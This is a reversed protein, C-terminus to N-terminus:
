TEKNNGISISHGYLICEVSVCVELKAVRDQIFQLQFPPQVYLVGSNVDCAIWM